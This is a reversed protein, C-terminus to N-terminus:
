AKKRRVIKLVLQKQETRDNIERREPAYDGEVRALWDLARIRDSASPVVVENGVKWPKGEAIDSAIEMRRERTIIASKLRKEAAATGEEMIAKQRAQQAEQYRRQAENWYRTLTAKHYDYKSALLRMTDSYGHGAEMATLIQTILEEKNAKIRM